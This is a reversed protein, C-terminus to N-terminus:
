SIKEAFQNDSALTIGLVEDYIPKSNPIYRGFKCIINDYKQLCNLQTIIEEPRYGTYIVVPDFCHYESRLKDIFLRVEEFQLMPELGGFVIAKTIPNGLYIKIITDIDYEDITTNKILPENQCIDTSIGAEICCKFDCSSTILFMSPKKYNIFDEVAVGRLRIRSM